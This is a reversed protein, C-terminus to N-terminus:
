PLDPTVRRAFDRKRLFVALRFCVWVVAVAAYLTIVMPQAGFLEPFFRYMVIEVIAALCWIVGGWAAELWVGLAAVPFLVALSAMAFQWHIPLTDFRFDGDGLYGILRGWYISTSALAGLSVARLFLTHLSDFLGTEIRPGSHIDDDTM